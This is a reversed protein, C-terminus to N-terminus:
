GENITHGPAHGGLDLHTPQPLQDDKGKPVKHGPRPLFLQINVSHIFVKM